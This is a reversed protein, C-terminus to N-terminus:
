GRPRHGLDEGKPFRSLQPSFSCKRPPEEGWCDPILSIYCTHGVRPVPDSYSKISSTERSAAPVKIGLATPPLKSSAWGSGTLQQVAASGSLICSGLGQGGEWHKEKHQSPLGKSSLPLYGRPGPWPPGLPSCTPSQSNLGQRAVETAQSCGCTQSLLCLRGRLNLFPPGYRTRTYILPGEKGQGPHKWYTQDQSQSVPLCDQPTQLAKSPSKRPIEELCECNTPPTHELDQTIGGGEYRYM